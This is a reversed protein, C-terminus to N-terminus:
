QVVLIERSCLENDESIFIHDKNKDLKVFICWARYKILQKILIKDVQITRFSNMTKPLREGNEDRTREITITCNDFDVDKYKLGLLEGYRMGTYALMLMMTCRVIDLFRKSYQLFVKMEPSTLFNIKKEGQEFPIKTFRNRRIVDTDVAANIAINFM